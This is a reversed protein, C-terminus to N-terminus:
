LNCLFHRVRDFMSNIMQDPPTKRLVPILKSADSHNMFFSIIAFLIRILFIVEVVANESVSRSIKLIEQTFRKRERSETRMLLLFIFPNM